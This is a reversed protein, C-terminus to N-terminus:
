SLAPPGRMRIGSRFLRSAIRGGPSLLLRPAAIWANWARGSRLRLVSGATRALLEIALATLPTLALAVVAAAGGAAPGIGALWEAAELAGLLAVQTAILPAFGIRQPGGAMLGWMLLLVPPLVTAVSLHSHSHTGGAYGLDHAVLAALWAAGLLSAVSPDLRRKM